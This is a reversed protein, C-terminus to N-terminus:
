FLSKGGESKRGKWLIYINVNQVNSYHLYRYILTHIYTSFKNAGYPARLTPGLLYGIGIWGM